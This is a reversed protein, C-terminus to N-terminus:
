VEGRNERMIQCLDDVARQRQEPTFQDAFAAKIVQRLENMMMFRYPEDSQQSQCEMEAQTTWEDWNDLIAVCASEIIQERTM